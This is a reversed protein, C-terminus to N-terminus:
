LILPLYIVSGYREVHANKKLRKVTPAAHAKQKM